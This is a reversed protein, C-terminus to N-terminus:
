VPLNMRRDIPRSVFSHLRYKYASESPSGRNATRPIFMPRYSLGPNLVGSDGQFAPGEALSGTAPGIAGKIARAEAGGLDERYEGYGQDILERNVNEGNAPDLGQEEVFCGSDLM